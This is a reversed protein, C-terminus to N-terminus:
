PLVKISYDKWGDLEITLTDGSLRLGQVVVPWVKGILPLRITPNGEIIDFYLGDETSEVAARMGAPISLNVRGGVPITAAPGSRSISIGSGILMGIMDSQSVAGVPLGHEQLDQERKRRGM